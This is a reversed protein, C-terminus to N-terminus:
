ELRFGAVVQTCGNNGHPSDKAFSCLVVFTERKIRFTTARLLLPEADERDQTLEVSCSLGYALEVLAAGELHSESGALGHGFLDCKEEDAGPDAGDDSTILISTGTQAWNKEDILLAVVNQGHGAQRRVSENAM